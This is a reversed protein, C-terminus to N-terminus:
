DQAFVLNANWFSCFSGSIQEARYEHGLDRITTSVTFGADKLKGALYATGEPIWHYGDRSGYEFHIAKLREKKATAREIRAPIGGFGNGWAAAVAADAPTGDMAPIRSYPRQGKPDPAFAAGYARKFVPDWQEMAKKLGEADFAGPGFAFVAAYIEPHALGLNWAGFGGMSFGAIGRSAPNAMTRFRGDVIAVLDRVIFDEWRGTAPSNVYFSGGLPGMGAASVAIFERSTKSTFAQNLADKMSGFQDISEGYGGLFYVVPYRRNGSEYSPPLLVKIRTIGEDGLLNDDLAPSSIRLGYDGQDTRYEDVIGPEGLKSSSLPVPAAQALEWAEARGTCLCASFVMMLAVRSLMPKWVRMARGDIAHSRLEM